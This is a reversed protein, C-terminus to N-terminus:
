VLRLAPATLRRQELRQLILLCARAVELTKEIEALVSKAMNRAETGADLKSIRSIQDTRRQETEVVTRAAAALAKGSHDPENLARVSMRHGSLAGAEGVPSLTPGPFIASGDIQYIDPVGHM